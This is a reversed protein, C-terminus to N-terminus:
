CDALFVNNGPTVVVFSGNPFEGAIAEPGDFLDPHSEKSIGPVQVIRLM